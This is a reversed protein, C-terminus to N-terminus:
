DPQFQRSNSKGYAFDDAFRVFSISDLTTQAFDDALVQRLQGTVDIEDEVRASRDYGHFGRFKLALNQTDEALHCGLHAM